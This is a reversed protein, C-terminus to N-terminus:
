HGGHGDGGAAPAPPPPVLDIYEAGVTITGKIGVGQKPVVKVTYSGAPVQAALTDSAKDMSTLVDQSEGQPTVHVEVRANNPLAENQQAAADKVSYTVNLTANYELVFSFSLAQVAQEPAGAAPFDIPRPDSAFTPFAQVYVAHDAVGLRGEGDIAIARIRQWGTGSPTADGAPGTIALKKLPPEGQLLTATHPQTGVNEYVVNTGPAVLINEPVYRSESPRTGDVIQVRVEKPGVYGDVVTVNSRMYPHPHCHMQFAGTTSFVLSKSSQPQIYDLAPNKSGTDLAVTVPVTGPLAGEAWVWSWGSQAASASLSLSSGPAIWTPSSSSLTFSLPALVKVGSGGSGTPPTVSGGPTTTTTPSEDKTTNVCGAALLALALLAVFPVRAQM